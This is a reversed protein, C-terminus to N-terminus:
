QSFMQRPLSTGRRTSPWLRSWGRITMTGDMGYCHLILGGPMNLGLLQILMALLETEGLRPTGDRAKGHRVANGNNSSRRLSQKFVATHIIQVM